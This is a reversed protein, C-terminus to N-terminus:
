YVLSWLSCSIVSTMLLKSVMVIFMFVGVLPGFVESCCIDDGSKVVIDLM